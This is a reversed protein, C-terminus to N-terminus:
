ADLRPLLWIAIQWNSVQDKSSRTLPRVCPNTHWILWCAVEPFRVVQLKGPICRKWRQPEEAAISQFDFTCMTAGAHQCTNVLTNSWRTSRMRVSTKFSLLSSFSSKQERQNARGRQQKGADGREGFEAWHLFEPTTSAAVRLIV